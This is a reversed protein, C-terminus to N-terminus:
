LNKYIAATITGSRQIICSQTDTELSLVPTVSHPELKSAQEALAAVLGANDASAEGKAGLCLGQHNVLLCGFVGPQNTRSILYYM